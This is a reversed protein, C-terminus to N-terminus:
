AVIKQMDFLETIIKESNEIAWKWEGHTPADGDWWEAYYTVNRLKELDDCLEAPIVTDRKAQSILKALSPSEGLGHNPILDILGKRILMRALVLKLWDNSDVSRFLVNISTPKIAQGHAAKDFVENVNARIKEIEFGQTGFKLSRIDNWSYVVLLFVLFTIFMWDIPSQGSQLRVYSHLSILAIAATSYLSFPIILLKKMYM